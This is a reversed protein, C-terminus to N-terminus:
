PGIEIRYYGSRGPPRSVLSQRLTQRMFRDLSDDGSSEVLVLPGLSGLATVHLSFTVPHGPFRDADIEAPVADRPVDFGFRSGDGVVPYLEVRAFRDDGPSAEGQHRGLATFPFVDRPLLQDRPSAVEDLRLSLEAAAPSDDFSLRPAFLEFLDGPRRGRIVELKGSSTNWRTPLFLPATDLLALQDFADNPSSEAGGGALALYPNEVRIPHEPVPEVRLLFLGLAHVAVGAATGVLLFRM